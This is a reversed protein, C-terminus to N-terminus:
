WLYHCRAQREMKVLMDRKEITMKPAYTEWYRVSNRTILAKQLVSQIFKLM